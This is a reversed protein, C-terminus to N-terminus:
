FLALKLPKFVPDVCAVLRFRDLFCIRFFGLKKGRFVINFFVSKQGGGGWVCVWVREGPGERTSTKNNPAESQWIPPQPSHPAWHPETRMPSLRGAEVIRHTKKSYHALAGWRSRSGDRVRARPGRSYATWLGGEKSLTSHLRSKRPGREEQQQTPSPQAGRPTEARAGLLAAHRARHNTVQKTTRGPLQKAIEPNRQSEGFLRKMLAEEEAAFASHDIAPGISETHRERMKLATLTNCKGGDGAHFKMLVYKWLGNHASTAYQVVLKVIL